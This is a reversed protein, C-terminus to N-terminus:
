PAPSAGVATGGCALAGVGSCILFLSWGGGRTSFCSFDPGVKRVVPTVVEPLWAESELGAVSGALASGALGTEWGALVSLGVAAAGGALPLVDAEAAPSRIEWPRWSLVGTRSLM